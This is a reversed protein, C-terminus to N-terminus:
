YCLYLGRLKLALPPIVQPSKELFGLSVGGAVCFFQKKHGGRLVVCVCSPAGCWGVMALGAEEVGSVILLSAGGM